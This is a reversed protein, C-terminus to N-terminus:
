SIETDPGYDVECDDEIDPLERTLHKSIYMENLMNFGIIILAVIVGVLANSTETSFGYGVLIPILYTSLVTTINAKLNSDIMVIKQIIKKIHFISHCMKLNPSVSKSNPSVSFTVYIM